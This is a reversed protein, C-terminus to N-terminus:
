KKVINDVVLIIITVIIALFIIPETKQKIFLEVILLGLAIIDLIMVLDRNFSWLIVSMMILFIAITILNRM